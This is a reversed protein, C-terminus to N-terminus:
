AVMRTREKASALLQQEEISQLFDCEKCRSSSGVSNERSGSADGPRISYQADTVDEDAMHDPWLNEEALTSRLGDFTTAEGLWRQSM